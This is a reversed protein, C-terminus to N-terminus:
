CEVNGEYLTRGDCVITLYDLDINLWIERGDTQHVFYFDEGAGSIPGTTAEWDEPETDTLESILGLHDLPEGSFHIADEADEELSSIDSVEPM